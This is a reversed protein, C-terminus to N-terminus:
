LKTQSTIANKLEDWDPKFDPHKLEVPVSVGGQLEILPVYADYTPEFVIVEDGPCVVTSIATAIAQTAGATITIESQFDYNVKQCLLHKNIIAKRLEPVGPM